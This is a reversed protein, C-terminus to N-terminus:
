NTRFLTINRADKKAPGVARRIDIIYDADRLYGEGKKPWEILFLSTARWMDELGLYYLEEPNELRYLDMHYITREGNMSGVIPYEQILNYTPSTVTGRYGAAAILSQCLTTKGAGLGGYLYVCAPWNLTSYLEDGLARTEELTQQLHESVIQM